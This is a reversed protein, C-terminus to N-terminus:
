GKLLCTKIDKLNDLVLITDLLKLMSVHIGEPVTEKANEKNTLHTVVSHFLAVAQVLYAILDKVKIIEPRLIDLVQAVYRNVPNFFM